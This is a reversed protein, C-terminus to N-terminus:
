GPLPKTVLMVNEQGPVPTKLDAVISALAKKDRLGQAKIKQRTNDYLSLYNKPDVKPKKRAETMNASPLSAWKTMLCEYRNTTPLEELEPKKAVGTTYKARGM